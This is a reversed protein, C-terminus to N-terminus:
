YGAFDPELAIQAFVPTNGAWKRGGWAYSLGAGEIGGTVAGWLTSFCAVWGTELHTRTKLWYTSVPFLITLARFQLGVVPDARNILRLLFISWTSWIIALWTCFRFWQGSTVPTVPTVSTVIRVPYTRRQEHCPRWGPSTHCVQRTHRLHRPKSTVVPTEM